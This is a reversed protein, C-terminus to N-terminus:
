KHLSSTGKTVNAVCKSEVNSKELLAVLSINKQLQVQLILMLALGENARGFNPPYAHKKYCTETTHGVKGIHMCEVIADKKHLWMKIIMM